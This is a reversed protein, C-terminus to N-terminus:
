APSEDTCSEVGEAVLLRWRLRDRVATLAAVLEARSEPMAREPHGDRLAVISRLVRVAQADRYWERREM